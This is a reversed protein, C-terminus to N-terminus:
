KRGLALDYIEKGMVERGIILKQIEQTGHGFLGARVWRYRREHPMTGTYGQAGNVQICTDLAQLAVNTFYWRIMSAQLTIKRGKDYERLVRYGFSRISEIKTIAEVLPFMVGEFSGIPRGWVVRQKCYQISLEISDMAAGLYHFPILARELDFATMQKYFGTNESGVIHESDLEVNRLRIGGLDASEEMSDIHYKEFGPNDAEVFFESIGRTGSEKSDTRALVMWAECRSVGSLPGKEGNIVYRNGNRSATTSTRAVDSGSQPETSAIGLQAEGSLLKPMWKDVLNSGCSEAFNLCTPMLPWPLGYGIVRSRGLEEHAIAQFVASGSQGGFKEPVSIGLIGRKGAERRIKRCVRDYDEHANNRLPNIFSEVFDRVGNRMISEEDSYDQELWM